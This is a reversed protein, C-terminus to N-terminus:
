KIADQASQVSEFELFGYGKHRGEVVTPAMECGVIVGFAEFVSKIDDQSLDKHVGGVYVRNYEMAERQIEQIIAEAQPM